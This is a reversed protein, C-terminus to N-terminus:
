RKRNRQMANTFIRWDEQWALIREEGNSDYDNIHLDELNVKVLSHNDSEIASIVKRAGPLTLSNANCQLRDL